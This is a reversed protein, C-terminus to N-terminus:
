GQSNIKYYSSIKYSNTTICYDIKHPLAASNTPQVSRDLDGMLRQSQSMRDKSAWQHMPDKAGVHGGKPISNTPFSKTPFQNQLFQNPAPAYCWENSACKQKQRGMILWQSCSTGDNVTWKHRPTMRLHGSNLISSTPIPKTPLPKTSISKTPISKTHTHHSVLQQIRVEAEAM